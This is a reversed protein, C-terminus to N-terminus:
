TILELKPLKFWRDPNELPMLVWGSIFWRRLVWRGVAFCPLLGTM